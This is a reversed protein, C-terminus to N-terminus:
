KFYVKSQMLVSNILQTNMRQVGLDNLHSDTVEFSGDFSVSIIKEPEVIAYNDYSGALIWKRETTDNLCKGLSYDGIPNKCNMMEHMITPVIDFHCTWHNYVRPPVNPRHIMFPVQLQASSYNSNHGWYNKKNENFEQSHDGTIVIWTNEYMGRRKLDNLVVGVLSDVYYATNKYLNLFPTADIDNNLLEYKVYEWEPQFPCMQKPHSMAHLADYFLFSFLPQNGEVKQSRAQLWKQTIAMDRDSAKEGVTELEIGKVKSFITRDFPPNTLPASPFTEIHYQNAQLVDMLVPSTQSALVSNWYIGPISYFISFLGTRTGNSGSYHHQYVECEKSFRYINPMALSDLARPNWSDLLIFVVNKRDISDTVVPHLPYNMDTAKENMSLMNSEVRKVGLKAMLSKGTAPFYLPYYRSTKTINFYGYADAWIHICHGMAMFALLTMVICRGLRVSLLQHWNIIKYALFLMVCFFLLTGFIVM